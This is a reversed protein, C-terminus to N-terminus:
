KQDEELDQLIKLLGTKEAITGLEDTIKISSLNMKNRDRETRSTLPFALGTNIVQEIEGLIMDPVNGKKLASEKMTEIFEMPSVEYPCMEECKHCSVCLWLARNM